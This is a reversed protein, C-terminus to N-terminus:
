INKLRHQPYQNALLALIQRHKSRSWWDQSCNEEIKYYVSEMLGKCSGSTVFVCPVLVHSGDPIKKDKAQVSYYTYKM